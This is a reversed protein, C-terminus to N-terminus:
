HDPESRGSTHCKGIHIRFHARDAEREFVSPIDCNGVHDAIKDKQGDQATMGQRYALDRLKRRWSPMRQDRQELLRAVDAVEFRQPIHQFCNAYWAHVTFHIVKEGRAKYNLPMLKELLAADGEVVRARGWIKVQQRNAYDM